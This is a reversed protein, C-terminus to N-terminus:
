GRTAPLVIPFGEFEDASGPADADFAHRFTHFTLQQTAPDFEVLGYGSGKIHAVQEPDLGQQGERTNSGPEPNAAALMTIAHGFGDRFRGTWDPAGPQRDEGPADPWWARPFGNSTGPVMFSLPGDDWEDLGYYLLAGSHQDGHLMVLNKAPRLIELARHRATQPWGGCDLDIVRRALQGGAHTTAKCFITQSCLIRLPADETRAIWDRLWAEQRPGLLEADPTDVASPDSNGRRQQEATLVSDPGTKFKRDEIIAWSVGGYDMETFYVEIGREIPEPDVPDPLHGAQTQQVANVWDVPMLFGGAGFGRVGQQPVFRKGSQGWINGQFVDHDDPIVISPRDKLIERWTWGHQWYKRLYDLMAEETPKDRAVGFGGHSEYIQDGAFFVLDPDQAAVNRVMRQQPFCEGHDCSFVAIKLPSGSGPDQRITGEWFHDEGLWNYRVRYPHDTTADWDELRFHATRSLPDIQAEALPEGAATELFAIQSDDPGIPPFLATLKLIGRSLTYQTWLIPGFTQEPHATFADGSIQWDRFGWEVGTVDATPRGPSQAALAINGSLDLQEQDGTLTLSSAGSEAHLTFGPPKVDLTLRVDETVSLAQPSFGDGMILQGNSTIGVRFGSRPHVLTNQYGPLPGRIGLIFGGWIEKDDVSPPRITIELHLDGPTEVQHTLLHLTRGAAAQAIVEGDEMRWNQLPNAWYEPGIWTRTGQWNSQFANPNPQCAALTTAAATAKVFDRRTPM